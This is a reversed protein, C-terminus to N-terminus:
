YLGLQILGPRTLDIMWKEDYYLCLVPTYHTVKKKKTPNILKSLSHLYEQSLTCKTRLKSKDLMEKWGHEWESDYDSGIEIKKSNFHESEDVLNSDDTAKAKSNKNTKLAKAVASAIPKNLEEGNASFKKAGVFTVRVGEKYAYLWTM